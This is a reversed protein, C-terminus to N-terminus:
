SSSSFSRDVARIFEASCNQVVKPTSHDIHIQGGGITANIRALVASLSRDKRMRPTLRGLGHAISNRALIAAEVCPWGDCKRLVVGHVQKFVDHRNNWTNTANVEFEDVLYSMLSSLPHAVQNHVLQISLSDLYAEVISVIRVISYQSRMTEPDVAGLSSRLVRVRGHSYNRTYDKSSENSLLMGLAAESLEFRPSPGQM